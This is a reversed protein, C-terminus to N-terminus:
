FGIYMSDISEGVSVSIIPQQSERPLQNIVANVKTNIDTLAKNTDYNLLLTANITSVGLSSSSSMHDIGNAQSISNELPTTIFGAILEPDAGVYATTVTIMANQMMPYQRIPLQEISRLGLVMILLSLVMSLVPRKIFIDTFQM